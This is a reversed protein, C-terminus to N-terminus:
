WTLHERRLDLIAGSEAGVILGPGVPSPDCGHAAGKAVSGEARSLAPLALEEVPERSKARSLDPCTTGCPPGVEGWDVVFPACSHIGLRIPKGRYLIYRPHAFAPEGPRGINELLLVTAQNIDHEPIGGPGPPVSASRQTGIILDPMGSGTWDYLCLKIRGRGGGYDETFAVPQGDAFRLLTKDGLGTESARAYAALLGTQDLCVYDLGAGFLNGVAPRVRWVTVLPQGGRMLKVGPAFQPESRTGINRYWTHHGFIDSVLLDLLGDGDWDFLLPNTYGWQAESPGQISGNPGAQIRIVEGGARLYVEKDFLPKGPEGVNRYFLLYGGANGVVLDPLGNGTLDGTTPIACSGANLRPSTQQVRVPDHFAPVGDFERGASRCFYVYGDEAGVLVDTRGDGDWDAACGLHINQPLVLEGGSTNRVPAGTGFETARGTAPFFHLHDLFDGCILDAKDTGRFDALMPSATGYVEVPRGESLLPEPPAFIPDRATGINRLWYVHGRLPGGRWAGDADYPVYDKDNWGKGAPWYDDWFDTGIILDLVGDRDLDFPHIRSPRENLQVPGTSTEIESPEGIRPRGPTGVDPYLLYQAGRRAASIINMRGPGFPSGAVFGVVGPIRGGPLLRPTGDPNVGDSLFIYAGGEYCGEWCSVLLDRAGRGLWDVVDCAAWIGVALDGERVSPAYQLEPADDTFRSAGEEDEWRILSM